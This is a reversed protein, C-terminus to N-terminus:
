AIGKLVKPSRTLLQSFPWYQYTLNHELSHQASCDQRGQFPRYSHYSYPALNSREVAREMRCHDTDQVSFTVPRVNYLIKSKSKILLWMMPLKHAFKTEGQTHEWHMLNITRTRLKVKKKEDMSQTHKNYKIRSLGLVGTTQFEIVDVFADLLLKCGEEAKISERGLGNRYHYLKLGSLTACKIYSSTHGRHV